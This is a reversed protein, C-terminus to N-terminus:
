IPDFTDKREDVDMVAMMAEERGGKRGTKPMLFDNRGDPQESM